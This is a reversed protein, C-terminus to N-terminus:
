FRLLVTYFLIKTANNNYKFHQIKIVHINIHYKIIANNYTKNRLFNKLSVIPKPYKIYEWERTGTVSRYTRTTVYGGFCIEYYIIFICHMILFLAADMKWLLIGFMYRIYEFYLYLCKIFIIWKFIWILLIHIIRTHIKRHSHM